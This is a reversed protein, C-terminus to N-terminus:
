ILGTIIIANSAVTPIAANDRDNYARKTSGNAVTRAKIKGYRKQVLFIIIEKSKNNEQENLDKTSILEFVVRDHLQKM